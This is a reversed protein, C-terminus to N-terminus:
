MRMMAPAATIVILVLLLISLPFALKVEASKTREEALKKRQNWLVESEDELKEQLEVGKYINEKLISVIRTFDRVRASEAFSDMLEILNRHEESFQRNIEIIKSRFYGKNGFSDYGKAIRQFAQTFVMGSNLLLIIQYNFSPLSQLVDNEQEKKLSKEKEKGDFYMLLLGIPIIFLEIPFTSEKVLEWQINKVGEEARPLILYNEKNAEVKNIIGEVKRDLKNIDKATSDKKKEALPVLQVKVNRVVSDKGDRAKIRLEVPADGVSREIATVGKGKEEYITPEIGGKVYRSGAMLFTLLLLILLYNKNKRTLVLAQAHELKSTYDYAELKKLLSDINLKKTLEYIM